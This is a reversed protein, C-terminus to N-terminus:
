LLAGSYLMTIITKNETALAKKKPSSGIALDGLARDGLSIQLPNRQGMCLILMQECATMQLDGFMQGAFGRATLVM